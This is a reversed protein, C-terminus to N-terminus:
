LGKHRSLTILIVSGFATRYCKQIPVLSEACGFGPQKDRQWQIGPDVYMCGLYAYDTHKHYPKAKEIRAYGSGVVRGEVEAVVVQVDDAVIMEGLDYYHLEEEKLTGDFPREYAVIGQECQLLADLDVPTAERIVIDNM